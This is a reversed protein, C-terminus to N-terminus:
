CIWLILDPMRLAVRKLATPGDSAPIIEYGLKGLVAGVIQINAPQDDVVLIRAAEIENLPASVLAASKQEAPAIAQANSNM